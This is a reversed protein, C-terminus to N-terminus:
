ARELRYLGGALTLAYLEGGKSQGFSSLQGLKPGLFRHGTARGGDQVFARLEGECFDAFVYAGTLDHIKSGRYVYGGTISCGQDHSYEYIPGHHNPPATGGAFSHSGEMRRWGYNDGGGSSKPDFDVEEWQNQGVDGIWMDGTSRDFTFRWPNRLGYAWIEDRGDRGVFPNDDPITYAGSGSAKPNIRLIKGLLTNLNQGNGIAGHADGAGGGDGLAVYLYGDPGFLIQGGNHNGEPDAVRLLDRPSTARGGSLTYERLVNDGAPGSGSQSTFYVYLKKADASFALGLLGQENGKSIQSGIDLIPSGVKGSRIPRITGLHRQAIYFASDGPRLAMAVPDAISVVKTLKVKAAALNPPSTPPPTNRRATPAQTAAAGATARAGGGAAASSAGPSATVVDPFTATADPSSIIRDADTEDGGGCAALLVAMVVALVALRGTRMAGVTAAVAESHV